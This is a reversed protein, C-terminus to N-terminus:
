SLRDLYSEGRGELFSVLLDDDDDPWGSERGRFMERPSIDNQRLLLMRDLFIESPIPLACRRTEGRIEAVVDKEYGVILRCRFALTTASERM